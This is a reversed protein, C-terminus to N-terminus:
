VIERIGVLGVTMYQPLPTDLIVRLPTICEVELELTALVVYSSTSVTSLNSVVWSVLWGVLGRERVM